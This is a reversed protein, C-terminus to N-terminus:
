PTMWSLVQTAQLAVILCMGSLLVLSWGFMRRFLDGERGVLGVAGASITLNQLSIMKGVVGGSANAAALLTPDLGTQEAASVRLAGFLSNSSTDSGTM